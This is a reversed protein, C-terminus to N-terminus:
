YACRATQSASPTKPKSASPSIRRRAACASSRATIMVFQKAGPRSGSPHATQGPFKSISKTPSGPEVPTKLPPVCASPVPHLCLDLMSPTVPPPLRPDLNFVHYIEESWSVAGSALDLHWNGIKAVRQAAKLEAESTRLADEIRKRETIDRFYWVRGYYRGGAGTVPTSYRDLVRGDKLLIEERSKEERHEYLYRVRALFEEPKAVRPVVSQLMLENEAAKAIREPIGWLEVFQRNYSVVRANEDVLLIADLSAEQQTSLIRNKLELEDRVRRLETIDYLTSRSMVYKGDSDTIATGSLLVPFVSGDKRVVEFELDRVWGREKLKPFNDQFVRLSAPAMLEYYKVRGILEERTYGLWKLETDNIQVIVGDGDLSHYGCPANNYLDAIQDAAKQLALEEGQIWNKAELLREFPERVSAVFVARYIFSYAAIKYIHGLLNFVDTVATYLTFSLEGLISIAAAAFLSASEVTRDRRSRAYFLVAAIVFIAIIIYEAVVKLPTLGKGEIFTHPLDREYAIGIWYVLVTLGLAAALLLYRTHPSKLPRPLRIAVLALAAASVFRAALWFNIAKEPNAPTVFDPMGQYSLLHAFDILGVALLACALIVINGSREISYSHWAAGFVLMSVVISFSEVFIHLPLYRALNEFAHHPPAQWVLSSFCHM